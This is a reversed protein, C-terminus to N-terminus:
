NSTRNQHYTKFFTSSEKLLFFYTSLSFLVINILTVTILVPQIKSSLCYSVAIFLYIVIILINCLICLARAWNLIRATLICIVLCSIIQRTQIEGPYLYQYLSFFHWVWGVVLFIFAKKVSTPFAKFDFFIPSCPADGNFIKAFQASLRQGRILTGGETEAGSLHQQRCSTQEM